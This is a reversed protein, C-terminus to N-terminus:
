YALTLVSAGVQHVDGDFEIVFEKAGRSSVEATFIEGDKEIVGQFGEDVDLCRSPKGSQTSRFRLELADFADACIRQPSTRGRQRILASLRSARDM